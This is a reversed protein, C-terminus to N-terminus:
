GQKIKNIAEKYANLLTSGQPLNKALFKAEEALMKAYSARITQKLRDLIKEEEEPPVKDAGEIPKGLHKSLDALNRVSNLDSVTQVVNSLTQETLEKMESSIENLEPNNEIASVVGPTLLVDLLWKMAKQNNLKEDEELLRGLYTSENRSSGSEQRQQRLLRLLRKERSEEEDGEPRNFVSDYTEAGIISRIKKQVLNLKKPDSYKEKLSDELLGGTLTHFLKVVAGPSEMAAVGTIFTAPNSLSVKFFHSPDYMLASVVFDHNTRLNQKIEDFVQSHKELIADQAKKHSEFIKKYKARYGPIALDVVAELTVRLMMIADNATSKTAAGATKALNVWAGLFTKYMLDSSVSQGGMGMGMGAGYGGFGEYGGGGGSGGGGGDGGDEVLLHIYERLILREKREM